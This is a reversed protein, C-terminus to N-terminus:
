SWDFAAEERQAFLRRSERGPRPGDVSSGRAKRGPGLTTDDSGSVVHRGDPHFAVPCAPGTHGSLRLVEQGRQADWLRVTCDEGRPGGCSSLVRRGDPSLAVARVWDKHGEFRRLERGTELDWLRVSRDVGGSLFRRGDSSFAVTLVQLAHGAFVRILGVDKGPRPAAPAGAAAKPPNPGGDSLTFWLGPGLIKVKGFVKVSDGRKLTSAWKVDCTSCRLVCMKANPNTASYGVDGPEFRIAPNYDAGVVTPNFQIWVDYTGRRSGALVTAVTSSTVAWRSDFRRVAERNMRESERRAQDRAERERIANHGTDTRAPHAQQWAKYFADIEGL